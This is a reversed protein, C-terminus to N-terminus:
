PICVRACAVHACWKVCYVCYTHREFSRLPAPDHVSWLRITDDWSSSLFLHAHAASWDVCPVEREHAAFHRVPNREPPASVDWLKVSGDGCASAVLNENEESWAVDLTAAACM